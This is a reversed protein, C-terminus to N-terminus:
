LAGFERKTVNELYMRLPDWFLTKIEMHTTGLILNGNQYGYINPATFYGIVLLPWYNQCCGM